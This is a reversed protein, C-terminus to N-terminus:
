NDLLSIFLMESKSKLNNNLFLRKTNDDFYIQETRLRVCDPSTNLLEEEMPFAVGTEFSVKSKM